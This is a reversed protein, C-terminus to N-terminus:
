TKQNKKTLSSAEYLTRLRPIARLQFERLECIQKRCAGLSYSTHYELHPVTPFVLQVYGVETKNITQKTGARDTADKQSCCESVQTMEHVHVSGTWESIQNITIKLGTQCQVGLVETQCYDKSRWCIWNSFLHISLPLFNDNNAM